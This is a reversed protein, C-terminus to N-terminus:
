TDIESYFETETIQAKKIRNIKCLAHELMIINYGMSEKEEDTLKTQLAQDLSVFAACFQQQSCDKEVLGCTEMGTRSGKAMKYISDAWESASPMPLIGAEVIDGCILLATLDGINRFRTTTKKTQIDTQRSTLWKFVRSVSPKETQNFMDNWQLRQDWYLSLLSLERTIQAQGYCNKKVYYKEGKHKTEEGIETKKFRLWDALSNFWRYRDSKAFPSGFFVGRFALINFFGVGNNSSLREVDAYIEQRANALSPAHQRFPLYYDPDKFVVTLVKKNRPPVFSSSLLPLLHLLFKAMHLQPKSLQYVSDIYLM